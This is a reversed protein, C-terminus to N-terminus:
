RTPECHRSAVGSMETFLAASMAGGARSKTPASRLISADQPM